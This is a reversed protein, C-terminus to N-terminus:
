DLLQDASVFDLSYGEIKEEKKMHKRQYDMNLIGEPIESIFQSIDYERIDEWQNMDGLPVTLCLNKKARSCAVYFLRREEELSSQSSLSHKSPFRGQV